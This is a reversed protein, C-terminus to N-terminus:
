GYKKYRYILSHMKIFFNKDILGDKPDKPMDISYEERLEKKLVSFVQEITQEKSVPDM